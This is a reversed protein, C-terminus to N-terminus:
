EGTGRCQELCISFFCCQDSGVWRYCTCPTCGPEGTGSNQCRSPSAPTCRPQRWRRRGRLNTQARCPRGQPSGSNRECVNAHRGSTGARWRQGRCQCGRRQGEKRGEKGGRGGRGVCRACVAEVRAGGQRRDLGLAAGGQVADGCHKHSCQLMWLSSRPRSSASCSGGKPTCLVDSCAAYICAGTARGQLQHARLLSGARSCSSTFHQTQVCLGHM